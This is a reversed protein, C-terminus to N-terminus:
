IFAGAEYLDGFRQILEVENMDEEYQNVEKLYKIIDKLTLTWTNYSNNPRIFTYKNNLNKPTTDSM